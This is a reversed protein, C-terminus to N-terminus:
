INNLSDIAANCASVTPARGEAYVEGNVVVQWRYNGRAPDFRIQRPEPREHRSTRVTTPKANMM